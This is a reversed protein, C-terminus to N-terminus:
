REGGGGDSIKPREYLHWVLRGVLATGVYRHADAPLPQGTGFARLECVEPRHDNALAWVEVVEPRRSAVHLIPGTLVLRHWRDDVPVEYRYITPAQDAM